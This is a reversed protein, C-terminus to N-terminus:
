DEHTYASLVGSGKLTAKFPEVGKVDGGPGNWSVSVRGEYGKNTDTRYMRVNAYAEYATVLGVAKLYAQGPDDVPANNPGTFGDFGELNVSWGRHTVLSDDWGESDFDSVDVETAAIPMEIKSLGKVVVYNPSEETGTNVLLRNFRAPRKKLPATM